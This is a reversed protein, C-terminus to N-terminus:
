EGSFIDRPMKSLYEKVYKNNPDLRLVIQAYYRAIEYKKIEFYAETLYSYAQICIAPQNNCQNPAASLFRSIEFAASEWEMRDLLLTALKWYAEPFWCDIVVDDSSQGRSRQVVPNSDLLGILRRYADYSEQRLNQRYLARAYSDLVFPNEFERELPLKLISTAKQYDGREYFEKSKKIESDFANSFTNPYPKCSGIVEGAAVRLPHEKLDDRPSVNAYYIGHGEIAFLKIVGPRADSRSSKVNRTCSTALQLTICLFILLATKLINTMYDEFDLKSARPSNPIKM